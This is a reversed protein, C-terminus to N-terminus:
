MYGGDVIKSNDVREFMITADHLLERKTEPASTDAAAKYKETSVNLSTAIFYQYNDYEIDGAGITNVDPMTGDGDWAKTSTIVPYEDESKGPETYLGRIHIVVKSKVLWELQRLLFTRVGGRVTMQTTQRSKWKFKKHRKTGSSRVRWEVKHTVDFRNPRYAWDIFQTSYEWERNSSNYSYLYLYLHNAM